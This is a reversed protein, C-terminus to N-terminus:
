RRSAMVTLTMGALVLLASISFGVPGEPVLWTPYHPFAEALTQVAPQQTDAREQNFAMLGARAFVAGVVLLCGVLFVAKGVVLASKPSRRIRLRLWEM